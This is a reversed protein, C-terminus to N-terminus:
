FSILFPTFSALSVRKEELPTFFRALRHQGVINPTAPLPVAPTANKRTPFAQPPAWCKADGYFDLKVVNTSGQQTNLGQVVNDIWRFMM